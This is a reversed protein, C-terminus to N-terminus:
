LLFLWGARLPEREDWHYTKGMPDVMFRVGSQGFRDECASHLQPDDFWAELINRALPEEDLNGVNGLILPMGHTM